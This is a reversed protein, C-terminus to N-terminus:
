HSAVLMFLDPVVRCTKGDSTSWRSGDAYEVSELDVRSVTALPHLTLDAGATKGTAVNLKLEVTKRLESSDESGVPTIRAKADYGHVTVSVAVITNAQWNDFQLHVRPSSVYRNSGDVVVVNGAGQRQARLGVPCNAGSFHASQGANLLIKSPKPVDPKPPTLNQASGVAGGLLVVLFAAFIRNV